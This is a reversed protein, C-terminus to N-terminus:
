KKKVNALDLILSITGDGLLTCGALYKMQNMRRLYSPLAKVVVQQQGLLADCFICIKQDNQEVMIMIGEHLDTIETKINLIHHLRLIPYVEGRVMIMEHNEEKMLADNSKPRFSEKVISTPITFVSAGVKLNMGEIIALTLPLKLYVIMGKGEESDVSVSGGINEINKAVVDMGVGRGSFESINEKTSFGPQFIFNYIEKDTLEGEPKVILGNKKAKQLIKEKNLGKGDDQITILVDSGVNQASLKITGTIPKGIRQRMEMTEIGHDMANRVLHMIPDSIKEIINKDVETEEGELVIEVNKDLKKSMDRVIRHMKQFTFSLPLMRISMVIERLEGTLKQLQTATKNFNPLKLGELDPSKMVMEELMVIEGVLDMLVDLKNVNVSIMKQNPAQAKHEEINCEEIKSKDAKNEEVKLEEIKICNSEDSCSTIDDHNSSIVLEECLDEVFEFNRIFPNEAFIQQISSYGINTLFTIQFGEKRMIQLAEENDFLENPTYVMDNTIDELERILTFARMNEMQCAEDFFIVVKYQEMSNVEEMEMNDQKIKQLMQNMENKIQEPDADPELGQEIKELELKIFDSVELVLDTLRSYDVIKPNEERLCYFLDELSHAVSAIHTYFMMSASGKITHMIRFIENIKALDLSDSKEGLLLDQELENLLEQTEFLFMDLMPENQKDSM